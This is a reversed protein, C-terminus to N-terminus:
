IVMKHLLLAVCYTCVCVCEIFTPHCFFFFFYISIRMILVIRCFIQSFSSLFMKLLFHYQSSCTRKEGYCNSYVFAFFFLVIIGNWVWRCVYKILYCKFLYSITPQTSCNFISIRCQGCYIDNSYENSGYYNMNLTNGNNDFTISNTYSFDISFDISDIYTGYSHYYWIQNSQNKSCLDITHVFFTSHTTHLPAM